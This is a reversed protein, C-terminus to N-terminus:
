SYFLQLYFAKQQSHTLNLIRALSSTIRKKTHLKTSVVLQGPFQKQLKNGLSRLARQRSIYIDVGNKVLKIKAIEADQANAIEKKVIELIEETSNRLQLTGEFYNQDSM